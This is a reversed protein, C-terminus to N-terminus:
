KKRRKAKILRKVKRAKELNKLIKRRITPSMKKQNGKARKMGSSIYYLDGENEYGMSEQGWKKSWSGLKKLLHQKNKKFNDKESFSVVRTVKEKVIGKKDSYYGGQGKVSTYGGFKQSLFKKVEQVRKNYETKSIAKNGSKTSPVLVAQEVPLHFAQEKQRATLKLTGVM